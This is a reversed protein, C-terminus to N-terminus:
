WLASVLRLGDTFEHDDNILILDNPLQDLLKFRIEDRWFEGCTRCTYMKHSAEKNRQEKLPDNFVSTM